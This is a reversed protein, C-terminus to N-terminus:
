SAVGLEDGLAEMERAHEQWDRTALLDQRVHHVHEYAARMDAYRLWDRDEESVVLDVRMFRRTVRETMEIEHALKANWIKAVGSVDGVGMEGCDHHLAADIMALSPSPHLALIIQAVRCHHAAVHEVPALAMQPDHHWRTVYGSALIAPLDRTM